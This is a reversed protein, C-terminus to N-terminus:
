SDFTHDLSRDLLMAKDAYGIGFIDSHAGGVQALEGGCSPKLM